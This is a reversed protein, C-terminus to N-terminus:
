VFDRLARAPDAADASPVSRGAEILRRATMFAPADNMADVALLTDGRYYWVSQSGPRRGPRVVTREYGDNLGAIQLKVDYQDSWFWPKADYAEPEGLLNTAATEAHHIAHPVSELRVRRGRHPFNACDGVAMIRPDATRCYEDVVIGDKVPLAAQAALETNPAVGIGVVTVDAALQSGDALVGGGMTLESLAAAERIDVGYARHLDRYYDATDESAVRGLIRMAAELLVVSVGATRAVAAAELGIYGGGVLLMSGGQRLYPALADADGITRMSLVNPLEGRIAAPLGRARAGTALLLADYAISEGKVTEVQAAKRDIRAVRQGGLWEIRNDAYWAADRLLLRDLPLEGSLYAKSLPPRQYPAVEEEGVILLNVAPDLSRAKAVFALAAQGGGVVVIRGPRDSM